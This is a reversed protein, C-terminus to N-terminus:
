FKLQMGLTMNRGAQPVASLFSSHNYYTADLLNNMQLYLRYSQGASQQNLNLQGEYSLLASLLNYGATNAEDSATDKQKLVHSYELSGKILGGLGEWNSQMRTGVRTAPIRPLNNNGQAVHSDLKARVYDGFISFQYVDNAEYSAQAEVGNFHADRQTYQILRFNDFKDLTKAYIYDDIQNRYGTIDFRVDGATKSVSLALNNSKEKSLSANGLEYTNSAVHAGNAYLEQATPLRQNHSLSVAFAYDPFFQWTTALAVSTAEDDYKQTSFKKDISDPRITQWEHRAGLEVKIDQWQYHELVFASMMDSLTNPLFAEEGKIDFDARNLQVGITGSVGVIPAHVLEIRADYGKNNFQTAVTHDEIEQHQYDTYGARVKVNEISSFSPAYEAKFDLRKSNLIINPVDDHQHSEADHDHAEQSHVEQNYLQSDQDTAVASHSGCHITLGHPHCHDYGHSHGPLGYDDKKQTFALGAFGDNGIWSLGISGTDSKAYSGDVRSENQGDLAYGRVKYDNADRKIGEVHVAFQEGVGLTIAAAAVKEDAVTNGRINVEGEVGNGPMRSPIKADIVNVVGGIAGSSYLLAAPGRQIEIEEALLPEVTIAHDPSVSSADMVQAGDSLVSIRPSGQGRIIPRSAGGGFNDANVSMEGSLAEGLTSAGYILQDRKIEQSNFADEDSAAPQANIVITPLNRVAMHTNQLGHTSSDPTITDSESEPITEANSHQITPLLLLSFVLSRYTYPM